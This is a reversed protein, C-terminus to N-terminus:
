VCDRCISALLDGLPSRPAIEELPAHRGTLARRFESELPEAFELRPFGADLQRAAATDLADSPALTFRM